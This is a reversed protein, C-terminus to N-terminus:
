LGDDCAGGELVNKLAYIITYDLISIKKPDHEQRFKLKMMESRLAAQVKIRELPNEMDMEGAELLLKNEQLKELAAELEARIRIIDEPMLGTDEYAALREPAFGTITEDKTFPDNYNFHNAGIRALGFEGPDRYTLRDM